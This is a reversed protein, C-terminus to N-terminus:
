TSSTAIQAVVGHRCCSQHDVARVNASLVISVVYGGVPNGSQPDIGQAPLGPLPKPNSAIKKASKEALLRYTSNGTYKSLTAWELTLKLTFIEAILLCNSRSFFQVTGAEAINTQRPLTLV